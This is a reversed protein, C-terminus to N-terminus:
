IKQSSSFHHTKDRILYPTNTLLIMMMMQKNWTLIKVVARYKEVSGDRCRVNNDWDALLKLQRMKSEQKRVM